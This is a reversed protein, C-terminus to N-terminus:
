KIKRYRQQGTIAKEIPIVNVNNAKISFLFLTGLLHRDKIPIRNWVYGKFLDKVSFIEDKKVSDIESIALSLLVEADTM